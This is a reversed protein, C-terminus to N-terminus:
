VETYNFSVKIGKMVNQIIPNLRQPTVRMWILAAAASTGVRNDSEKQAREFRLLAVELGSKRDALQQRMSARRSSAKLSDDFSVRLFHKIDALTATGSVIKERRPADASGAVLECIAAMEKKIVTLDHESEYYTEPPNRETLNTLAAVVRGNEALRTAFGAREQPTQTSKQVWEQLFVGCLTLQHSSTSVLFSSLM